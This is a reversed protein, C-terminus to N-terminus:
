FIFFHLMKLKYGFLLDYIAKHFSGFVLHIALGFVLHSISIQMCFLRHCKDFLHHHLSFVLCLMYICVSKDLYSVLANFLLLGNSHSTTFPYCYFWGHRTWSLKQKDIENFQCEWHIKRTHERLKGCM